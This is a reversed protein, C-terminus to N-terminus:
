VVTGLRQKAIRVFAPTLLHSNKHLGHRLFKSPERIYKSGLEQWTGYYAKSDTWVVSHGMVGRPLRKNKRGKATRVRLSGALRGTRKPAFDRSTPLVIRKVVERTAHRVVKHRVQRPLARLTADLKEDGTVLVKM